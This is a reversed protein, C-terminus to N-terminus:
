EPIPFRLENKHIFSGQTYLQIHVKLVLYRKPQQEDCIDKCTWVNSYTSRGLSAIPQFKRGDLEVTLEEFGFSTAGAELMSCFRAAQGSLYLIINVM